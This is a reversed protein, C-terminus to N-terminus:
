DNGAAEAAVAAAGGDLLDARLCGAAWAMDRLAEAQKQTPRTVGRIYAAIALGGDDPIDIIVQM